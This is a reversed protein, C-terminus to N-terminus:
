FEKRIVEWRERSAIIRLAARLARGRTKATGGQLTDYISSMVLKHTPCTTNTRVVVYQTNAYVVWHWMGVRETRRLCVTFLGRNICEEPLKKWWRNLPWPPPEYSQYPLYDIALMRKWQEADEDSMTYKYKVSM